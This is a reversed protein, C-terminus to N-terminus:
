KSNANLLIMRVRMRSFYAAPVTITLSISLYVSVIERSLLCYPNKDPRLVISASICTMSSQFLAVSSPLVVWTTKKSKLYAKSKIFWRIRRWLSSFSCSFHSVDHIAWYRVPLFCLTLDFLWYEAQSSTSAPTICPLTSPGKRNIMKIDSM